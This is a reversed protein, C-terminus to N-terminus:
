RKELNKINFIQETKEKSVIYIDAEEKDDMFDFWGCLVYNYGGKIIGSVYDVCHGADFFPAMFTCNEGMWKHRIAVEGLAMNPLTYIFLSPSPFFSNSVITAQFQLDTHLSAHRNYFVLAVQSNGNQTPLGSDKLLAESALFLTKSLMDMKFFRPYNIGLFRYLEQFFDSVPYDSARQFVLEDDEYLIRRELVVHRKIYLQEYEKM